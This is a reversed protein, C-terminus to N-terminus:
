GHAVEGLSVCAALRAAGAADSAEIRALEREFDPWSSEAQGLATAIRERLAAKPCRVPVERGANGMLADAIFAAIYESRTM